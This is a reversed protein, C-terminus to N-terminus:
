CTSQLLLVLQTFCVTGRVCLFPLQYCMVLGMHRSPVQGPCLQCQLLVSPAHPIPSAPSSQPFGGIWCLASNPGDTLVFSGM